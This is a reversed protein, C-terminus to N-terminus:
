SIGDPPLFFDSIEMDLVNALEQLRNLTPIRRGDVYKYLTTTSVKKCLLGLKYPTLDSMSMVEQLNYSVFMTSSDKYWETEVGPKLLLDGATTGYRYAFKDLDDLNKGIEVMANHHAKKVDKEGRAEMISLLNVGLWCSNSIGCMIYYENVADMDVEDFMGFMLKIHEINEKKPPLFFDAVEIKWFDAMNQAVKLSPMSQGTKYKHFNGPSIDLMGGVKVQSIGTADLYSSFTEAMYQTSSDKWRSADM